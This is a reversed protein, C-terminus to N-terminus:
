VQFLIQTWDIWVLVLRVARCSCNKKREEFILRKQESHPAVSADPELNQLLHPVFTTLSMSAGRRPKLSTRGGVGGEEVDTGRTVAEIMCSLLAEGVCAELIVRVAATEDATVVAGAGLRLSM